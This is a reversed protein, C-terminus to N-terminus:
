KSDSLKTEPNVVPAATPTMVDCIFSKNPTLNVGTGLPFNSIRKTHSTLVRRSGQNKKYFFRCNIENNIKCFQYSSIPLIGELLQYATPIETAQM